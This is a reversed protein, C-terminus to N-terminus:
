AGDLYIRLLLFPAAVLWGAPSAALIKVIGVQIEGDSLSVFGGIFLVWGGVYLGSLIGLVILTSGLAQRMIRDGNVIDRPTLFMMM